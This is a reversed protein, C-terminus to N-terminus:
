RDMGAGELERAPSALQQGVAAHLAVEPRAALESDVHRLEALTADVADLRPLLGAASELCRAAREEEGRLEADVARRFAERRQGVIDAREGEVEVLARAAQPDLDRWPNGLDDDLRGLVHPPLKGLPTVWEQACATLLDARTTGLAYRKSKIRGATLRGVPAASPHEAAQEVAADIRRHMALVQSAAVATAAREFRAVAGDLEVLPSEADTMARADARLGAVWRKAWLFAEGSLAESRREGLLRRQSPTMPSATREAAGLWAAALQRAGTKENRAYWADVEEAIGALEASARQADAAKAELEARDLGVLSPAIELATQSVAAVLREDRDVARRVGSIVVVPPRAPTRIAERMLAADGESHSELVYRDFEVAKGKRDAWDALDRLAYKAHLQKDRPVDVDHVVVIGPRDLSASLGIEPHRARMIAFSADLLAQENAVYKWGREAVAVMLAFHRLRVDPDKSTKFAPFKERESTISHPQEIQNTTRLARRVEWSSIGLRQVTSAAHFGNLLTEAAKDQEMSELWATVQKRQQLATEPSSRQWIKRVERALVTDGITSMSKAMLEDSVAFDGATGARTAEVLKRGLDELKAAKRINVGFHFTCRQMLDLQQIRSPSWGIGPELENLRAAMAERMAPMLASGYDTTPLLKAVNVGRDRLNDTVAKVLSKDEEVGEIATLPVRQGSADLGIAWMIMRGREEPGTVHTADMWMGVLDLPHLPRERLEDLLGQTFPVFLRHASMHNTIDALGAADRLNPSLAALKRQSFNAFLDFQDLEQADLHSLLTPFAM